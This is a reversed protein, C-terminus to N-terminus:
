SSDQFGVENPTFSLLLNCCLVTGAHTKANNHTSAEELQKVAVLSHTIFIKIYKRYITNNSCLMIIVNAIYYLKGHTM